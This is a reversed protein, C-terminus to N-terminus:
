IPDDLTLGKETRKPFWVGVITGGRMVVPSIWGQPRYVRKYYKREVLHGKTAHALLFPDFAGM